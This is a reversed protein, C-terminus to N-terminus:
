IKFDIDKKMDNIYVVDETQNFKLLSIVDVGNEWRM